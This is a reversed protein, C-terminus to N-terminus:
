IKAEMMSIVVTAVTTTLVMADVTAVVGIVGVLALATNIRYIAKIIMDKIVTTMVEKKFPIIMIKRGKILNNISILNLNSKILILRHITSHLLRIKEGTGNHRTTIRKGLLPGKRATFRMWTRKKTGIVGM